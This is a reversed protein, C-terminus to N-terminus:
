YYYGYGRSTRYFPNFSNFYGAGTDDAANRYVSNRVARGPIDPSFSQNYFRPTISFSETGKVTTENNLNPLQVPPALEMTRTKMREEREMVAAIDIERRINQIDFNVTRIKFRGTNPIEPALNTLSPRIEIRQILLEKPVETIVPIETVAKKEQAIGAFSFWIYFFLLGLKNMNPFKKLYILFQALREPQMLNLFPSYMAGFIIKLLKVLLQPKSGM